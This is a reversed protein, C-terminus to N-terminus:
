IRIRCCIYLFFIMCCCYIVCCKYKYLQFLCLLLALTNPIEGSVKNKKLPKFMEKYLRADLWKKRKCGVEDNSNQKGQERVEKALEKLTKDPKKNQQKWGKASPSGKSSPSNSKNDKGSRRPNGAKNKVSCPSPSSSSPTNPPTRKELRQSKRVNNPSSSIQGRTSRRLASADDNSKKKSSGVEDEKTKRWTRTENVM